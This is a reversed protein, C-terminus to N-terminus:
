GLVIAPLEEFSRIIYDAASTVIPRDIVGTYAAFADVAPPTATKLELDTIGDGVALIPRTLGLSRVLEAKGGNRTMPSVQEFGSYAGGDAFYIAVANVDHDPIGLHRALPLIANRLGGSVLVVRVGANTLKALSESAGPELRSMYEEALAAVEEQSPAVLDMRSAFIDALQVEGRMARGTTEAIEARLIDSRQSALWDIGEVASLTSDVDVVVTKFRPAM